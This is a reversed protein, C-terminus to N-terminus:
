IDHGRLYEAATMEKSGAPILRDIILIGKATYFGFSNQQHYITGPKHSGSELTHAQTIIALQSNIITKSKPWGAYARVERELIIAPKTFDMIGDAPNIKSDYITDKEPQPRPELDGKLIAPLHKILMDAGLESLKTALTQKSETGTLKIAAQDFLPGADMSPVLQMLSVGTVTEGALLASEIPTPGRHKPLLSPHINVIGKPFIKIVCEPVIKGFAALVGIDARYVKLQDIASKLNAYELLTIHNEEAFKAIELPRLNRSVNRVQPTIVIAVLTYGTALLQKVIPTNTNVGTALRENGFFLIRNSM